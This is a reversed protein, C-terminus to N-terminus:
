IGFGALAEADSDTYPSAELQRTFRENNWVELYTLNGMVAV